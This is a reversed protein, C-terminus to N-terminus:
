WEGGIREAIALIMNHFEEETMQGKARNAFWSIIRTNEPTYGEGPIIQDFTPALESISEIGRHGAELKPRRSDTEFPQMVFPCGKLGEATTWEPTISFLVKAGKADDKKRQWLYRWPDRDYRARRAKRKMTADCEKCYSQCGSKHIPHPSFDAKAKEEGCVSCQIM